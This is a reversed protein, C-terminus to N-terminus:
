KVRVEVHGYVIETELEEGFKIPIGDISKYREIWGTEHQLDGLTDLAVVHTQLVGDLFVEIEGIRYFPHELSLLSDTTIIM